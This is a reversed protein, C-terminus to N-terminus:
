HEIKNIISLIYVYSSVTLPDAMINYLTYAHLCVLNFIM